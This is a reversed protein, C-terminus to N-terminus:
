IFIGNEIRILEENVLNIGSLSGLLEIPRKNEFVISPMRFWSRVKERNGFVTESYELLQSVQLVKDSLNFDLKGLKQRRHWTSASIRLYVMLENVSIDLYKAINKITTVSIGDELKKLVRVSGTRKSVERELLQLPM